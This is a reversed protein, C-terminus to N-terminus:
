LPLMARSVDSFGNKEINYRFWEERVSFGAEHYVDLIKGISSWNRQRQLQRLHAHISKYCREKFGQKDSGEGFKVDGQIKHVNKLLQLLAKWNKTEICAKLEEEFGERGYVKMYILYWISDPVTELTLTGIKKELDNVYDLTIGWSILYEKISLPPLTEESQLDVSSKDRPKSAWAKVLDIRKLCTERQQLLYVLVNQVDWRIAMEALTMTRRSLLVSGFNFDYSLRKCEKAWNLMTKVAQVNSTKVGVGLYKWPDNTFDSRRITEKLAGDISMTISNAPDKSNTQPSTEMSHIFVTSFILGAFLLVHNKM